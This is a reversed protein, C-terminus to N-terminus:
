RAWGRMIRAEVLAVLAFMAISLSSSAVIAAYLKDSQYNFTAQIILAGLGKDAGIWEGVIAGIVATATAIRLSSFLMPLSRPLHLRLFTEFKNASLMRFLEEENPTASALGRIMNVLTPFFCIIAAIIIKPTMGLGFILIIIPSLALIPITNFFLVVPFYAMRIFRAYAFLIAFLVAALNGFFFGALAETATPLFNSAILDTQTFFVAIIKTPTPAIYAPVGSLPLLFQWAALISLAGFTPALIHTFRTM